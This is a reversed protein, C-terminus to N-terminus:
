LFVELNVSGVNSTEFVNLSFRSITFFGLCLDNHGAWFFSSLSVNDAFDFWSLGVPM